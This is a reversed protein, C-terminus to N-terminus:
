SYCSCVNKKYIADYLAQIEFSPALDYELRLISKCTEYTTAASSLYGLELQCRMLETYFKEICPEIEIAWHYYMCALELNNKKRLYKGYDLVAYMLKNRLKERYVFLYAETEGILFSGNYMHLIDSLVIHWHAWNIKQNSGVLDYRLSNLKNEVDWCDVWVQSEDLALHSNNLLISESGIIKRARHLTVDFVREAFDGEKDWLCDQVKQKSTGRKGHVILVKILNQPVQRGKGNFPLTKGDVVISFCGLTYINVKTKQHGMVGSDCTM